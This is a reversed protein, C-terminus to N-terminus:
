STLDAHTAVAIANANVLVFNNVIQINFGLSCIVM